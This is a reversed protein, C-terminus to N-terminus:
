GVLSGDTCCRRGVKEVLSADAARHVTFTRAPLELVGFTGGPQGPNVTSRGTPDIIYTTVVQNLNRILAGPNVVMGVGFASLECAIHTHGVILVDSDAQRMWLRLEDVTTHEIYIGAIDSNPRAHHMAVRVGDITAAWSTPLARLYALSAPSLWAEESRETAAKGSDHKALKWREHNGRICPIRESRLIEITENPYQGYDVIDGACLVLDCGLLKISSLADTLALADAHIDSVIAVRTM